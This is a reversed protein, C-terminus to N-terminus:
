GPARLWHMLRNDFLLRRVRPWLGHREYRVLALRESLWAHIRIDEDSLPPRAASWRVAELAFKNRSVEPHEYLCDRFPEAVRSVPPVSNCRQFPIRNNPNIAVM